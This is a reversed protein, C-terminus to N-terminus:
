LGSFQVFRPFNYLVEVSFERCIWQNEPTCSLLIVLLVFLLLPSYVSPCLVFLHLLTCVEIINHIHPILRDMRVELLMVLARCVNKRVEPDDDTALHFLNQL